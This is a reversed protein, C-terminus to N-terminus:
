LIKLDNGLTTADNIRVTACQHFAADVVRDNASLSATHSPAINKGFKGLNAKFAVIPKQCARAVEMLKRGDQIGELYLFIYKTDPDEILYALFDETKLNLMNGASVFKYLGLCENALLNLVSMGVGGSHSIMSIDGPEVIRKLPPFPTCLGTEMNIIGICNPGVFRMDWKKAVRVM